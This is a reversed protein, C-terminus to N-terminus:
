TNLCGEKLIQYWGFTGLRRKGLKPMLFTIPWMYILPAEFYSTFLKGATAIPPSNKSMHGSYPAKIPCQAVCRIRCMRLIVCAMNKWAVDVVRQMSLNRNNNAKMAVIERFKRNREVCHDRLNSLIKQSHRRSVFYTECIRQILQLIGIKTVEFM